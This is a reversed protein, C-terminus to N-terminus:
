PSPPLTPPPSARTVVSTLKRSALISHVQTIQGDAGLEVRIVVKRAAKADEREPYTAVLAPLGNVLRVEASEPAGNLRAVRHFFLAVRERGLM